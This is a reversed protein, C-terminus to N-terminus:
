YSLWQDYGSGDYRGPCTVGRIIGQIIWRTGDALCKSQDGYTTWYFWGPGPYPSYPGSVATKASEQAANPAAQATGAVAAVAGATVATAIVARRAVRAVMANM